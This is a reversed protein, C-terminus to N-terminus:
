RRGARKRGAARELKAGEHLLTKADEASLNLSQGAEAEQELEELARLALLPYEQVIHDRVIVISKKSHAVERACCAAPDGAFDEGLM